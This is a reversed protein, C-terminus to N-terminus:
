IGRQYGYLQIHLRTTLTYGREIVAQAILSFHETISKTDVGEPMIYVRDLNFTSVLSDIEEFDKLDCVVFKFVSRNDIAFATIANENRRKKLPNGSNELKLSVNFQDANNHSIPAVTGATEIEVTWKLDHLRDILISLFKQQLMPEGGSIVLHNIQVNQKRQLKKLQTIVEDISYRHLEEEVNYRSWDWAYPTDCWVCALNCGALRLFFCPKGINKGEGQFTPGFIENVALTGIDSM